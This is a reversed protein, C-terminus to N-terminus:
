WLLFKEKMLQNYIDHAVDVRVAIEADITDDKSETRNANFGQFAINLCQGKLIGKRDEDSYGM